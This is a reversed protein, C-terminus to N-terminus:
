RRRHKKRTPKKPAPKSQPPPPPPAPPPAAALAAIKQQLDALQKRQGDADRRTQDLSAQLAQRERDAISVLAAIAAAAADTRPYQQVIRTLEQRASDNHGAAIEMRASKLLAGAEIDNPVTLVLYTIVAGLLSSLIATIILVRRVRMPWANEPLAGHM